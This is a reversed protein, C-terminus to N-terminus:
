AKPPRTKLRATVYAMTMGPDHNICVKLAGNGSADHWTEFDYAKRNQSSSKYINRSNIAM